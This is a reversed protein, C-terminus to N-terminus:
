MARAELVFKLVPNNTKSLLSTTEQMQSKAYEPLTNDQACIVMAVTKQVPTTVPIWEKPELTSPDFVVILSNAQGDVSRRSKVKALVILYKGTGIIEQVQKETELTAVRANELKGEAMKMGAELNRTKCSQYDLGAKFVDNRINLFPQELLSAPLSEEVVSSEMLKDGRELHSKVYAVAKRESPSLNEDETSNGGSCASIILSLSLFALYKLYKKM